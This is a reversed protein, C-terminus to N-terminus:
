REDNFEEKDRLYKGRENSDLYEQSEELGETIREISVDFIGAIRVIEHVRFDMQGRYRQNFMTRSMKLERALETQNWGREALLVAIRRQLIM